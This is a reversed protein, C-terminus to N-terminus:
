VEKIQILQFMDENASVLAKELKDKWGFQFTNTKDFNLLNGLTDWVGRIKTNAISLTGSIGIITEGTIDYIIKDIKVPIHFKTFLPTTKLKEFDFEKQFDEHWLAANTTCLNTM